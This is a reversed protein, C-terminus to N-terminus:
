LFHINIFWFKWSFIFIQVQLCDQLHQDDQGSFGNIKSSISEVKTDLEDGLTYVNKLLTTLEDLQTQFTTLKTLNARFTFLLFNLREVIFDAASM